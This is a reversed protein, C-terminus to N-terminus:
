LNWYDSPARRKSEHEVIMALENKRIHVSSNSRMDQQRKNDDHFQNMKDKLSPFILSVMPSRSFVAGHPTQRNYLLRIETKTRSLPM